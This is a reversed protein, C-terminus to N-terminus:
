IVRAQLTVSQTGGSEWESFVTFVQPQWVINIDLTKTYLQLNKALHTM